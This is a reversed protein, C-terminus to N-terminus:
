CFSLPSDIVFQTFRHLYIPPSSSSPVSKRPLHDSLFQLPRRENKRFPATDLSPVAATFRTQVPSPDQYSSRTQNTSPVTISSRALLRLLVLPPSRTLTLSLVSKKSRLMLPSIGRPTSRLVLDRLAGRPSTYLPSPTPVPPDSLGAYCSTPISRTGKSHPQFWGEGKSKRPSEFLVGERLYERRAGLALFPYLPAEGPCETPTAGALVLFRPSSSARDRVLWRHDRGYVPSYYIPYFLLTSLFVSAARGFFSCEGVM